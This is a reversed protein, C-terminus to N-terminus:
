RFNWELEDIIEKQKSYLEDVIGDGFTEIIIKANKRAETWVQGLTLKEAYLAKLYYELDHNNM